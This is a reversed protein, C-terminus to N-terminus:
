SKLNQKIKKVDEDPVGSWLLMQEVDKRKEGDALMRVGYESARPTVAMSTIGLTAVVKRVQQVYAVWENNGFVSRELDEDVPVEIKVFRSMTAPDQRQATGFEATPKGFTNAAVAYVHNPGPRLTEGNPFTVANGDLLGNVMVAVAPNMRDFEDFLLLAGESTLAQYAIGPAYGGNATTHGFVISAPTQPGCSIRFFKLGLAEAIQSLMYTKGTGAPGAVWVNDRRKIARVVQPTVKHQKGTMPVVRDGEKIEVTIAQPLNLRKYTAEAIRTVEAENVGVKGRLAQAIADALSDSGPAPTSAGLAQVDPADKPFLVKGNSDVLKTVDDALWAVQMSEVTASLVTNRGVTFRKSVVTAKDQRSLQEFAVTTMRDDETDDEQLQPVMAVSESTAACKKCWVWLPADKFALVTDGTTPMPGKHGMHRCQQPVQVREYRCYHNGNVPQPRDPDDTRKSEGLHTRTWEHM